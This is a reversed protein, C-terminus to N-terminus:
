AEPHGRLRAYMVEDYWQDTRDNHGWHRLVGERSFGAKEAVRASATNEVHCTLQVRELGLCDFGFQCAAQLAETM